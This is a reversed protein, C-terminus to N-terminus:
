IQRWLSAKRPLAHQTKSKWWNGWKTLIIGKRPILSKGVLVLFQFISKSKSENRAKALYINKKTQAGIKTARVLYTPYPEFNIQPLYSRQTDQNASILPAGRKRYNMNIEFQLEFFM